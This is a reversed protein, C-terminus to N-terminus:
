TLRRSISRRYRNALDDFIIFPAMTLAVKGHTGTVLFGHWHSYVMTLGGLMGGLWAGMTITGLLVHRKWRFTTKQGLHLLRFRHVGLYFVYLALVIASFQIIPHIILM